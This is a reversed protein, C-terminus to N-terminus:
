ISRDTCHFCIRRRFLLRRFSDRGLDPDRLSDPLCRRAPWLFPGHVSHRAPMASGGLRVVQM